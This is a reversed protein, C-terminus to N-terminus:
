RVEQAHELNVTKGTEGVYGVIGKGLPVKNSHSGHSGRLFLDSGFYGEFSDCSKSVLTEHGKPGEILYLTSHDCDCLIEVNTRIKAALGNLDLDNSIDKVIELFFERENIHRLERKYDEDKSAYRPLRVKSEILMSLMNLNTAPLSKFQRMGKLSSRRAELTNSSPSVSPECTRFMSRMKSRAFDHRLHKKSNTRIHKADKDSFFGSDTMAVIPSAPGSSEQSLSGRRGSVYDNITHFGHSVLWKNVLSLDARKLFYEQVLEPNQDFYEEFKNQDISGMNSVTITVPNDFHNM